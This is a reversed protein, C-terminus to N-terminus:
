SRSVQGKEGQGKLWVEAATAMFAAGQWLVDEHFLVHDCHNSKNGGPEDCGSGIRVFAGPIYKTYTAFDEGGMTPPIVEFHEEGFLMGVTQRCLDALESDNILVDTLTDFETEATCGFSEATKAAIRTIVEPLKEHIERSYCRTTGSLNAEGSIINFRSGSHFEGVTVVVPENPSFERSVATQLAMVVASAAVTADRCGEPKAGHGSLGKIRIKFVDGAAHSEKAPVGFMGLPIVNGVHQGLIVDVGELGGQEVVWKAGKGIEEAPQFILRVTGNLEERRETMIKAAGLLMAVHCDHGCAHMVGENESAFSFGTKETIELADMDARLAICKGPHYGKIDAIVGTPELRRFPIGLSELKECIRDTTRFEKGSLEPHRHLDRRIEIIEQELEKARIRIDM